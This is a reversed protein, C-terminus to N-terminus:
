WVVETFQQDEEVIPRDKKRGGKPIWKLMKIAMPKLDQSLYIMVKRVLVQAQAGEWVLLIRTGHSWQKFRTWRLKQAIPRIYFVEEDFLSLSIMVMPYSNHRLTLRGTTEILESIERYSVGSIRYKREDREEQEMAGQLCGQAYRTSVGRGTSKVEAM